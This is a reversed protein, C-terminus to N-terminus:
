GMAPGDPQERTCTFWRARCPLRWMELTVFSSAMFAVRASAPVKKKTTHVRGSVRQMCTGGIDDM